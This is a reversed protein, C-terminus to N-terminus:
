LTDLMDHWHEHPAVYNRMNKGLILCKVREGMELPSLLIKLIAPKNEALALLRAEGLMSLLFSAQNTYSLVQLGCESAWECLLSFNVDYTIDITNGYDLPNEILQHSAFGRLTGSLPGGRITRANSSGYDLIIILGSEISQSLEALWARQPLSIEVIQNDTWLAPDLTAQWDTLTKQLVPCTIPLFVEQATPEFQIFSQLFMGKEYRVRDCPLADLFENAIVFGSFQLPLATTQLGKLDQARDPNQEILLYSKIDTLHETIARYLSGDGAGYEAIHLPLPQSILFKALAAGLIPSLTPATIFDGQQSYPVKSQRYYGEIPDYLVKQLYDQFRLM